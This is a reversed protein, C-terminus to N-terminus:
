KGDASATRNAQKWIDELQSKYNEPYYGFENVDDMAWRIDKAKVKLENVKFTKDGNSEAHQKAYKKSLTVWDGYNFDTSPSARYITVEAEPNGKIKKLANISEIDEPTGRSGYWQSYMDSPIMQEGDVKETLDFARPGETPRHSYGYDSPETKAKLFEDLTKGKAEDLLNTSPTVGKPFGKPVNGVYGGQSMATGEPIMEKAFQKEADTLEGVGGWLRLSFDSPVDDILDFSRRLFREPNSLKRKLVSFTGLTAGKAFQAPDLSLASGIIDGSAFAGTYEPLGGGIQRADQQFKRVLDNELSKLAAYQSRTAQYQAGTTEEIVDDMSERILKSTGAYVKSSAADSTGAFFGNVTNENLSKVFREATQMDVKTPDKFISDFDNLISKVANKEVSLVPADLAEAMQKRVASLDLTAKEGAKKAIATYEDFIQKRAENWAQLTTGYSASEPNFAAKTGDDLTVTLKPARQKLVQLGSVKEATQKLAVGGSKKGQTGLAKNVSDDLTPWYTSRAIGGLAGLWVSFGGAILAENKTQELDGGSRTFAVAGTGAAEPLFRAAGKALLQAGGTTPVKSAAAGLIQQGKAIKSTPLMYQAVTGLFKGTGQGPANAALTTQRIEEARAPDFISDGTKFISPALGSIRSQIGRGIQGIGLATEGVSKLAGVGVGKAFTGFGAALGQKPAEIEEYEGQLDSLKLAM